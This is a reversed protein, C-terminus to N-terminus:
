GWGSLTWSTREGAKPRTGLTSTLQQAMVSMDLDREAGALGHSLFRDRQMEVFSKVKLTTLLSAGSWSGLSDVQRVIGHVVPQVYKAKERVYREEPIAKESLMYDDHRADAPQVRDQVLESLGQRKRSLKEGQVGTWARAELLKSFAKLIAAPIGTHESGEGIFVIRSMCIGRIDAPLALLANYILQHLPTEEDDPPTESAAGFLTETLNERIEIKSFEVPRTFTSTPWEIKLQGSLSTSSEGSSYELVHATVRRLFSEVIELDIQHDASLRTKAWTAFNKTLLKTARTSRHCRVERYEYIATVVTEEWGIDVVMGSRLGASVLATTPNPLLTVSSYAWREFLTHLVTSLVPHPLLSPLVLVLRANGPDVLLHKNYVEQVAREMKDGLLGLDIDKLDNRWLEYGEGWTDLSERPKTYSPLWQRYDGVRKAAAPKFDYRCQPHSEGEIGAKLYRPSLEIIVADEEKGYTSGPTSYNSSIYRAPPTIPTTANETNILGRRNIGDKSASTLPKTPSRPTDAMFTKCQIPQLRCDLAATPVELKRSSPRLRCSHIVHHRTSVHETAEASM